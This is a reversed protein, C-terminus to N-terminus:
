LGEFTALDKFKKLYHPKRLPSFPPLIQPAGPSEGASDFRSPGDGSPGSSARADENGSGAQSSM